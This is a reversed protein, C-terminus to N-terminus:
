ILAPDEQEHSKEERRKEKISQDEGYEHTPCEVNSICLKHEVNSCSDSDENNYGNFLEELNFYILDSYSDVRSNNPFSSFRGFNGPVFGKIRLLLEESNKDALIAKQEKAYNQHFQELDFDIVGQQQRSKAALESATGLWLCKTEGQNYLKYELVPQDERHQPRNFQQQQQQRERGITMDQRM